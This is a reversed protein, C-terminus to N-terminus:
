ISQLILLAKIVKQYYANLLGIAISLHHCSFLSIDTNVGASERREREEEGEGDQKYNPSYGWARAQKACGARGMVRGMEKYRDTDKLICLHPPV